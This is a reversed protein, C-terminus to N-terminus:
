KKQRQQRKSYGFFLGYLFIGMHLDRNFYLINMNTPIPVFPTYRMHTHFMYVCRYGCACRYCWCCCFFLQEACYSIHMDYIYICSFRPYVIVVRHRECVHRLSWCVVCIDTWGNVCMCVDSFRECRIGDSQTTHLLLAEILAIWNLKRHKRTFNPKRNPRESALAWEGGFENSVTYFLVFTSWCAIIFDNCYSQLTRARWSLQVSCELLVITETKKQQTLTWKIEVLIMM